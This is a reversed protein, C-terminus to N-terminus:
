KKNDVTLDKLSQGLETMDHSFERKFAAWDSHANDYSDIRKELAENRQELETVSKVYEGNRKMGSKKLHARLEEIRTKNAAIEAQNAQKFNKWEEEQNLKQAEAASNEQAVKVDAKATQLNARADEEKKATSDCSSLFLACLASCLVLATTFHKM